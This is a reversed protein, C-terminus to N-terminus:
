KVTIRLSYAYDCPRTAPLTVELGATSQKWRLDGDMTYVYLGESGFLAVLHTGDTAVSPNAHTSKLHRKVKPVAQIATRQWLM